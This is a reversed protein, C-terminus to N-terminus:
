MKANVIMMGLEMGLGKDEIPVDTNTRQVM